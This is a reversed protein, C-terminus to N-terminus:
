SMEFTIKVNGLYGRPWCVAKFSFKREIPSGQNQRQLPLRPTTIQWALSTSGPGECSALGLLPPNLGGSHAKWGGVWLVSSLLWLGKWLTSWSHIWDFKFFFFTLSFFFFLFLKLLSSVAASKGTLWCFGCALWLHLKFFINGHFHMKILQIEQPYLLSYFASWSAFPASSPQYSGPVDLCAM